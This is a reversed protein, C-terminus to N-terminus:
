LIETQKNLNPVGTIVQEAEEVRKTLRKIVQEAEEVRKILHKIEEQVGIVWPQRYHLGEAKNVVYVCILIADTCCLKYLNPLQSKYRTTKAPSSASGLFLTTSRTGGFRTM